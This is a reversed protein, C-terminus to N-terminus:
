HFQHYAAMKKDIRAGGAEFVIFHRVLDLFRDPRFVGKILVELEWTDRPVPSEGDITRWPMFREWDATLTGARAERGDSVVLVENYPFLAPIEHKYTQLQNFAGALTAKEDLPNKLEIIGLPLGNVFILIDPRREHKQEIITVQNAVLWDNREPREFDVLAIIDGRVSGDPGTYEVSVGDVLLQHFRRNREVTGPGDARLVRRLAERRADAPVTPNLRAIAAELRATLVVDGYGHREATPDDADPALGHAAAYGLEGFWELAAAEVTAEDLASM